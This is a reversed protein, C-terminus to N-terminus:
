AAAEDHESMETQDYAVTSVINGTHRATTGGQLWIRFDQAPLPPSMFYGQASDCELERLLAYCRADEVGEAVVKLGLSHGLEITSRVITSLRSDESIRSVFSRDIKLESVPLRM